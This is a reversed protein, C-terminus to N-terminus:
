IARVKAKPKKPEVLELAPTGDSIILLQDVVALIKKNKDLTEGSSHTVAAILERYPKLDLEPQYKIFDSAEVEFTALEQTVSVIMAPDVKRNIKGTAKMEWGEPMDCKNVGEKLGNPFYYQVIANRLELERDKLEKAKAAVQYWEAINKEAQAKEAVLQEATKPQVLTPDSM